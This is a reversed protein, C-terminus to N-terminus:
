IRAASFYDKERLDVSLADYVYMVYLSNEIAINILNIVRITRLSNKSHHIISFNYSMKNSIGILIRCLLWFQQVKM